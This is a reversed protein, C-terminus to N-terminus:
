YKLLDTLGQKLEELQEETIQGIKNILREKSISRIQFILVESTESWGRSFCNIMIKLNIAIVTEINYLFVPVAFENFLPFACGCEFLKKGTRFLKKIEIWVSNWTWYFQKEQIQKRNLILLITYDYKDSPMVVGYGTFPVIWLTSLSFHTKKLSWLLNIQIPFLLSDIM